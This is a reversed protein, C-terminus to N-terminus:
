QERSCDGFVNVCDIIDIVTCHMSYLCLPTLSMKITRVPEASTWGVAQYFTAVDVTAELSDGISIVKCM